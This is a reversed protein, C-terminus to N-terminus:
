LLNCVIVGLVYMGNCALFLTAGIFLQGAHLPGKMIIHACAIHSLVGQCADPMILLALIVKSVQHPLHTLRVLQRTPQVFLLSSDTLFHEFCISSCESYMHQQACCFFSITMTMGVNCLLPMSLHSQMYTCENHIGLEPYLAGNMCAKCVLVLIHLMFQTMLVFFNQNCTTCVSNANALVFSLEGPSTPSYAPSTPSYAPSTPSYSPSTPSYAALLCVFRQIIKCM